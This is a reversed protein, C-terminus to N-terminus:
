EWFVAARQRLAAAPDKLAAELSILEGVVSVAKDFHQQIQEADEIAGAIAWVPKRARRAIEAVGFPGKGQLSQRDLRGEGTIVVDAASIRQSLQLRQAVEAFGSVLKGRLFTLIGYGFGGAAGSRITESHNFGLSDEVRNVLGALERDLSEVEAPRLGKQPGFLYIAGEPGLLRTEVDALGIVEPWHSIDPPIVEAISGFHAPIPRVSNGERDLFTYGVAAALGFGADVTASGGLGISIREVGLDLLHRVILGTGFTDSELPRRESQAIRWLGSASSMDIFGEQQHVFFEASISHGLADVTAISKREAGLQFALLEATGEGGDAIPALDIQADRDHACVANALIECVEWASLTGKFKDPAILYRM